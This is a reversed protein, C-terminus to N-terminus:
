KETQIESCYIDRSIIRRFYKSENLAYNLRSFVDNEMAYYIDSIWNRVM